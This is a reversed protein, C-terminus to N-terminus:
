LGEENRGLDDERNWLLTYNSTEELGEMNVDSLSLNCGMKALEIATFRGLGSGAGTLFM